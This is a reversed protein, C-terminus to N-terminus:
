IFQPLTQFQIFSLFTETIGELKPYIWSSELVEPKIINWELFLLLSVALGSLLAWKLMGTFFGALRNIFGLMLAKFINTLLQGLMRVLFVVIIFVVVFVVAKIVGTNWEVMSKLINAVVNASLLALYVGAMLGLLTAVEHFFGKQYGRISGLLIVIAIILDLLNM